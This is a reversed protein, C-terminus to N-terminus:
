PARGFTPPVGHFSEPGLSHLPARMDTILMRDGPVIGLEAIRGARLEVVADVPEDAPGYVPCPTERCPPVWQALAVIRGDRVFVMDLSVPVNKMWMRTVRPPANLFLMGRDPPLEPRFMLGRAREESTRAVELFLIEDAVQARAAIPLYQAESSATALDVRGLGITALIALSVTGILILLVPPRRPTLAM